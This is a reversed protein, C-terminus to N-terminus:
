WRIIWNEENAGAQYRGMDYWQRTSESAYMYINLIERHKATESILSADYPPQINTRGYYQPILSAPDRNLRDRGQTAENQTM